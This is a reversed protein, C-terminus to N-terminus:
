RGNPHHDNTPRAGSGDNPPAQPVLGVRLAYRVQYAIQRIGLRKTMEGRHTEITKVSVRLQGAIEKTNWGETVLKLVELQRGTLRRLPQRVALARLISPGLRSLNGKLIVDEAGARVCNIATQDDLSEAVVILPATPRLRRVIALGALVDFGPVHPSALILDPAFGLLARTFPEEAAVQKCIVQLGAREVKRALLVGTKRDPELLLLRIVEGTNRLPPQNAM